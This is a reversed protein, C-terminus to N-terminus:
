GSVLGYIPAEPRSDEPAVEAEDRRGRGPPRRCARVCEIRNQVQFQAASSSGSGGMLKVRVPVCQVM